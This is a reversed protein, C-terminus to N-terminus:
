VEKLATHWFEFMDIFLKLKEENLNKILEQQFNSANEDLDFIQSIYKKADKNKKLELINIIASVLLPNYREDYNQLKDYFLSVLKHMKATNNKEKFLDHFVKFKSWYVEFEYPRNSKLRLARKYNKNEDYYIDNRRTNADMFEFDFTNPIIKVKSNLPFKDLTSVWYKWNNKPKIYFNYDKERPNDFYLAYYDETNNIKEEPTAYSLKEKQLQCFKGTDENIWLKETDRVDRRIKRLAKLNVYLPKKYNSVVIGIHIPLKGYVYKFEKNYKEMINDIFRSLYEAPIIVQYNIPSIDTILSYPKYSHIDSLSDSNLTILMNGESKNKDEFYPKLEIKFNKNELISKIRDKDIEEDKKDLEKLLNENGFKEIFDAISSILYIKAKKSQRLKEEKEAKSLNSLDEDTIKEMWFLLNSGELEQSKEGELKSSEVEWVLRKKRWEPIKLITDLNDHINEFFEQTTEWIRRLRAPSPNKRLLFQLLLTALIDLAPDNEDTFEEWKIKEEEWNIKSNLPTRKIWDEWKTGRINEFFIQRIYSNFSSQAKSHGKISDTSYIILFDEIFSFFRELNEILNDLYKSLINLNNNIKIKSDNLSKLYAKLNKLDNFKASLNIENFRNVKIFIDINKELFESIINLINSKSVKSKIQNLFGFRQRNENAKRDIENFIKQIIEGHKSLITLFGNINQIVKKFDVKNIVNSNLLDGCLWDELEFKISIYAVRNNKDKIETIWITEGNINDIWSAVQYHHIRSDCVECITPSNNKCKDSRFILRVQCIPCVGIAFNYEAEKEKECKKPIKEKGKKLIFETNKYVPYDKLKELDSVKKKVFYKELEQKQFKILGTNRKLFNEKANELLTSLNMLGRSAKTLSIYPYVEGKLYKDFIKLIKNELKNLDSKLKAVGSSIDEGINEGVIFYIGMEDKYIENGIPYEVELLKKIEEDIKEVIDRYWKVSALKFGKEALGMKDYQIGLIRWKFNRHSKAFQIVQNLDWNNKEILYIMEFLKAKFMSTSMYAQDWLSVDNVPYRSDAPIFGYLLYLIDRLTSYYVYKEKLESESILKDIITELNEHHLIELAKDINEPIFELNKGIKDKIKNLFNSNRQNEIVLKRVKEMFDETVIFKRTGFANSLFPTNWNIHEKPSGKDIGSNLGESAGYLIQLIKNKNDTNLNINRWKRFSNIFDNWGKVEINGSNTRIEIEIKNLLNELVNKVLDNVNSSSPNGGYFGGHNSNKWWDPFTKEVLSFISVIEAKLIEDRYQELKKLEFESM